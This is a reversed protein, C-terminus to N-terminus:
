DLDGNFVLTVLSPDKKRNGFAEASCHDIGLASMLSDGNERAEGHLHLHERAVEL